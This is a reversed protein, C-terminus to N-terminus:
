VIVSIMRELKNIEKCLITYIKKKKLWFDKQTEHYSYYLSKSDFNMCNVKNIRFNGKNYGFFIMAEVFVIFIMTRKINLM